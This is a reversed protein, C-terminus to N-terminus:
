NESILVNIMVSQLNYFRYFLITANLQIDIKFVVNGALGNEKTITRCVEMNEDLIFIGGGDTGVWIKGDSSKVAVRVKDGNLANRTKAAMVYIDDDLGDVIVFIFGERTMQVKGEYQARTKVPKHNDASKRRSTSNKHNGNRSM